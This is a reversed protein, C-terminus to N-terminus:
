SQWNMDRNLHELFKLYPSSNVFSCFARRCKLHFIIRQCKLPGSILSQKDKSKNNNQRLCGMWVECLAQKINNAHDFSASRFLPAHKSEVADLNHTFDKSRRSLRSLPFAIEFKCPNEKLFHDTQKEM